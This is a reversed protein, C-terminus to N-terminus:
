VAVQALNTWAKRNKPLCVNLHVIIIAQTKPAPPQFGKESVLYGAFVIQPLGIQCKRWKIEFKTVHPAAFLLSLHKEHTESFVLDVDQYTRALRFKRYLHNKARQLTKSGSKLGPPM